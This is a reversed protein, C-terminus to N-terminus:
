QWSRRLMPRSGLPTSPPPSPHSCRWAWQAPRGRRREQCNASLRDPEAGDSIAGERYPGVSGLQRPLATVRQRSEGTKAQPGNEEATRCSECGSRISFKGDPSVQAAHVRIPLETGLLHPWGCDRPGRWRQAMPNINNARPALGAPPFYVTGLNPAYILPGDAGTSGSSFTTPPQAHISIALFVFSSLFVSARV